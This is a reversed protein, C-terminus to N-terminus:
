PTHKDPKPPQHEMHLEKQVTVCFRLLIRAHELLGAVLRGLSM